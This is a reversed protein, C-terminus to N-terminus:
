EMWERITKPVNESFLIKNELNSNLANQFLGILHLNDPATIDMMGAQSALLRFETILEEISQNGQKIISLKDNADQICDALKFYEEILAWLGQHHPFYYERRWQHHKLHLDGEM